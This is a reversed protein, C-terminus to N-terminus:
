VNIILVMDAVYRVIFSGFPHFDMRSSGSRIQVALVYFASMQPNM